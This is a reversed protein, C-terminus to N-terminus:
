GSEIEIGKTGLVNKEKFIDRINWKHLYIMIETGM